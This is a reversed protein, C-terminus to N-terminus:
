GKEIIAQIERIQDEFLNAQRLADELAMGDIRQKIVDMVPFFQQMTVSEMGFLERTQMLMISIAEHAGDDDNEGLRTKLIALTELLVDYSAIAQQQQENM